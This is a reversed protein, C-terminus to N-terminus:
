AVFSHRRVAGRPLTVTTPEDVVDSSLEPTLEVTVQRRHAPGYVRVVTGTVTDLGWDIDVVDGTALDATM